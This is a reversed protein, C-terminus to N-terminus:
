KSFPSSSSSPPSKLIFSVYPLFMISLIDAFSLQSSLKEKPFSNIRERPPVNAALRRTVAELDKECSSDIPQSSVVLPPLKDRREITRM